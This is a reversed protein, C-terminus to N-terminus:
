KIMAQYFWMKKSEAVWAAVIGGQCVWGRTILEAVKEVLGKVDDDGVVLYNHRYSEYVWGPSQIPAKSM